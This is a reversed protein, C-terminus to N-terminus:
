RRRGAEGDTDSECEVPPRGFGKGVKVNGRITEGENGKAIQAIMMQAVMDHKLVLRRVNVFVASGGRGDSRMIVCDEVVAYSRFADGGRAMDGNLRYGNTIFCLGRAM